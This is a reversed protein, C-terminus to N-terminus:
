NVYNRWRKNKERIISIIRWTEAKKATKRKGGRLKELLNEIKGGRDGRAEAHETATECRPVKPPLQFSCFNGVTSSFFSRFFSSPPIAVENTSSLGSLLNQISCSQDPLVRGSRLRFLFKKNLPALLRTEKSIANIFSFYRRILIREIERKEFEIVCIQRLWMSSCLKQNREELM